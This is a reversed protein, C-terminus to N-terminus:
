GNSIAKVRARCIVRARELIDESLGAITTKNEVNFQVTAPPAFDSSNRREVLLWLHKDSKELRRMAWDLYEWKAFDMHTSLEPDRELAKHWSNLNIKPNQEAALAYKLPVGKGFRESVRKVVALTISPKPGPKGRKASKRAVERRPSKEKQM